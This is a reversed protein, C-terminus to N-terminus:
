LANVLEKFHKGRIEFNRYMDFSACAPSLLVIDGDKALKHAELVAQTMDKVRIIEPAKVSSPEDLVAKEIKQATAGLTILTKVREKIIPALPEFELNKDYGGAILIVKKDFARLGAISRTPSSAISDNYYRAGGVERVFEIRHEVGGFNEAVFRIVDFGVEDGVAAIATLYNEVNHEGPLKIASKHMIREGDLCLYGEADLFAKGEGKSYSFFEVKAKAEFQLDSCPANDANLILRDNKNQYLFINKKAGVYEEMNGHVDLHNPSINTVVALSPSKKMSILQFSSLEVVAIDNEKIQDCIPLLARGLNGGLHVTKGAKKLMQAILNSTTTKGDSGTIAYIKCPCLEFFLEMESTLFIGRQRMKLLEPHNYYMGPTRLVMDAEINELYSDGTKLTVGAKILADKEPIDDANRKDCLTVIAGAKAFKFILEEHSVGIGIFAIKKGNIKDYLDNINSFKM